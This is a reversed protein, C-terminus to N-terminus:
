DASQAVMTCMVGRLWQPSLRMDDDVFAIFPAQSAAIGTNRAYAINTRPEHMYRLTTTAEAALLKVLDAAGAEPSNDVVIIELSFHDQSRLALCSLVAARLQHVRRLTCIVINIHLVSM